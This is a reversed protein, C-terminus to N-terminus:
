PTNKTLQVSIHINVDNSLQWSGNPLKADDGLGFDLRHISISTTVIGARIEGDEQEIPGFTQFPIRIKKTIGRLTLDGEAIYGQETQVIRTSQFTIKPHKEADFFSTSRLNADRPPIATDVSAADITVQINSKGPNDPDIYAHGEFKNFRGHVRSLGLYGIDFKVSSHARAIQYDGAIRSNPLPNLGTKSMVHGPHFAILGLFAAVVFAAVALYRSPRLM